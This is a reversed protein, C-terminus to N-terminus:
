DNLRAIEEGFERIDEFSRYVSAFRVYAVKDIQKLNEMVLSGVFNSSIEREGTARISSKIKNIAQEMLELSVPRKELARLLGNRLKDENFPERSGDTKIVRPMVLEATEFTTFREKCHNCERRRRVSAGDAVLRSDIVKTDQTGCFPCHM